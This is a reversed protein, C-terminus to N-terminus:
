GSNPDGVAKTTLLEAGGFMKPKRLTTKEKKSPSWQELPSADRQSPPNPHPSIPNLMPNPLRQRVMKLYWSPHATRNTIPSSLHLGLHSSALIRAVSSKTVYKSVYSAHSSEALSARMFGHTWKSELKRKTIRSSCFILSHMHRRGTKSGLEQVTFYRLPVKGTDAIEASYTKRIKKMYKQWSHLWQTQNMRSSSTLTLFWVRPHHPWEHTLRYTWQWEKFRLCPQCKMCRWQLHTSLCDLSAM